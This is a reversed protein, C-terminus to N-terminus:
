VLGKAHMDEIIGKLLECAYYSSKGYELFVVVAYKPKDVPFFGVFWGHAPKNPVSQATGTKGAVSVDPMYLVHATGDPMNVAGVLGEKVIKIVDLPLSVDRKKSFNIEEDGSYKAVFPKLLFGGNAVVTAM